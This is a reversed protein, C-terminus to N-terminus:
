HEMSALHSAGAGIERTLSKQSWARHERAKRLREGVAKRDIEKEQGHGDM